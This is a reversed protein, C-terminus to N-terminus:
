LLEIRLHRGGKEWAQCDARRAELISRRRLRRGAWAAAAVVWVSVVVSLIPDAGALFSVLFMGGGMLISSSGIRMRERPAQLPAWWSFSGSRASVVRSGFVDAAQATRGAAAQSQRMLEHSGCSPCAKLRTLHRWACYVLGPVGLCCWALLEVLDSGDLVTDPVGLHGCHLCFM